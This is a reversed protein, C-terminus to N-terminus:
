SAYSHGFCGARHRNQALQTWCIDEFVTEKGVMLEKM